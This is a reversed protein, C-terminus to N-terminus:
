RFNDPSNTVSPRFPTFCSFSKPAPMLGRFFNKNQLKPRVLYNMVACALRRCVYTIDYGPLLLYSGARISGSPQSPQKHNSDYMVIYTSYMSFSLRSWVCAIRLFCSLPFFFAMVLLAARSCKVQGWIWDIWSGIHVVIRISHYM